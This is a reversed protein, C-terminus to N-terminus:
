HENRLNLFTDLVHRSFKDAGSKSLHYLDRFDEKKLQYDVFDRFYVNKFNTLKCIVENYRDSNSFIEQYLEHEPLRILLFNNSPNRRIVETLRNIEFDLKIKSDYNENIKISDIKFNSLAVDFKSDWSQFGTFNYSPFNFTCTLLFKVSDILKNNLIFNFDQRM